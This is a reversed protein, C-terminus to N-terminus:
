PTCTKSGSARFNSIAQRVRNQETSGLADWAAVGSKDLGEWALDMYFQWSHARGDFEQLAYAITERYHQAMQQHQFGNVGYRRYYDLMGPYDGNALMSNLTSVNISGNSNSLSLLKRFMEAHIVEHVVTKANLLTPRQNYGNTSNDNNFTITILYDVPPSTVARRNDALNATELNLHAVPFSTDFRQLYKNLTNTKSLKTFACEIKTNAFSPKKIIDRPRPLRPKGHEPSNIGTPGSSGGSGSSGGGRAEVHEHWTTTADAGGPYYVYETHSGTYTSGIYTYPGGNVSQYWDKYSHVRVAIMGGGGGGGCRCGVPPESSTRSSNSASPFETIKDDLKGKNYGEVTM